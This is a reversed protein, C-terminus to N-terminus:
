RGKEWEIGQRLDEVKRSVAEAYVGEQGEMIKPIEQLLALALDPERAELAARAAKALNLISRASKAALAEDGALTLATTVKVLATSRGDLTATLRSAM